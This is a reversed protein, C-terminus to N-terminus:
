NLLKKLIKESCKKRFDASQDLKQRMETLVSNSFLVSLHTLHDTNFELHPGSLVAKGEQEYCAIIAIKDTHPGEVYHALPKFRKPTDSNENPTFLGGGIVAM